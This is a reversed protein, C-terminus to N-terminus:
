IKIPAKREYAAVIHMTIYGVESDPVERSIVNELVLCAKKTADFIEKYETKMMGLFSNRINMNM